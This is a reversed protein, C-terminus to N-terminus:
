KVTIKKIKDGKSIALVDKMGKTVEGFVTYQGDLHPQPELCIYFQSGGHDPRGPRAMALSGAKHRNKNFEDKIRYGPGGRGTGTPDGAQAVFKPIVRHFIIGDYYGSSALTIFNTVAQPADKPFFKLEIVSGNEMEVVAIQKEMQLIMKDTVDYEKLELANAICAFMMVGLVAMALKIRM